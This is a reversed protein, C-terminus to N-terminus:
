SGSIKRRTKRWIEATPRMVKPRHPAMWACHQTVIACHMLRRQPPFRTRIRGPLRRGGM